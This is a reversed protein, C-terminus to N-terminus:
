SNKNFMSNSSANTAASIKIKKLPVGFHTRGKFLQNYKQCDQIFALTKPVRSHYDQQIIENSPTEILQYTLLVQAEKDKKIICSNGTHFSSCVRSIMFLIVWIFHSM